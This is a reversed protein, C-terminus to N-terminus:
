LVFDVVPSLIQQCRLMVPPYLFSSPGVNKPNAGPVLQQVPSSVALVTGDLAVMNVIVEGGAAEFVGKKGKRALGGSPFAGVFGFEGGSFAPPTAFGYMAQDFIIESFTAM